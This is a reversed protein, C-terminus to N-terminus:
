ELDPMDDFDEQEEEEDDDEGDLDPMSGDSDDDDDSSSVAGFSPGNSGAGRGYGGGSGMGPGGMGPGGMGPGSGGQMEQIKNVLAQAFNQVKPNSDQMLGQLSDPFSNSAKKWARKVASDNFLQSLQPDQQIIQTLAEAMQGGDGGGGGGRGGGSPKKASYDDDSNDGNDSDFSDDSNDYKNQAAQKARMKAERDAQKRAVQNARQIRDYKASIQLFFPTFFLFPPLLCCCGGFHGPQPPFYILFWLSFFGHVSGTPIFTREQKRKGQKAALEREERRIRRRTKRASIKEMRKEIFDITSKIDPDYDVKMANRLDKAAKEYDGLMRYALGRIKMAKCSDPNMKLAATCDQISANPRPPNVKLLQQARNAYTLPSPNLLVSETYKEVALEANGSNKAETAEMKAKQSAEMDQDSGSNRHRNSLPPYPTSDPTVVGEDIDDPEDAGSDDSDDQAGDEQDEDEDDGQNGEEKTEGDLDPMDDDEDDGDLDPMEDDDDDEGELDPMDSDDDSGEEQGPEDQDIYDKVGVLSWDKWESILWPLADKLFSLERVHILNPEEKMLSVLRRLVSFDMKEVKHKHKIKKKRPM